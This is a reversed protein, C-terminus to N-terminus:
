TGRLSRLALFGRLRRGSSLRARVLRLITRLERRAARAAEGAGEPPGYRARAAAATYPRPNIGLQSELTSALASLTASSAVAIRQDRLYDALEAHTAAAIRRPDRTLYRARRRGLKVLGLAGALAALALLPVLVRWPSKPEAAPQAFDVAAGSGTGGTADGVDFLRGAGLAAIADASDSAITYTASFTGRGPTPDFPLWGYGEFWAEVWAHADHDSVTWVGDQWTGSTFGVAVRSPIGLFRLMVTMAGAFHQCYGQRTRVVFDVLPPVLGSRPPKEEYRFGGRARLWREVALTAVYPSSTGRALREAEAWLPRYPHLSIYQPDRLLADIVAARGNARFPPLQARGLEVYRGAQVPYEPKSRLLERPTPRPAYSWVTYRQGKRFGRPVRVVGDTLFFARDLSPSELAVPSTAAVVHDDRLGAIEVEQRVWDSRRAAAAPLLPDPPLDGKAPALFIPYLNEIWRDAAFTDLTSARWYLARRPAKIRLVTTKTNPFEVGSYNADWVYRVGVPLGPSDYFDWSKWNLFADRTVASSTSAAAALAIVAVAAAIGPGLSRPLRARGLLLIWLAAALVLVGSALGNEMVTAPWGAAAVFATAAIVDWRAAVLLSVAFALGFVILLLLAHMDPEAAPDFPLKVEYYDILGLKIRETVPALWSADRWPLADDPPVGYAIWVATFLAAVAAPVCLWAPRLLAPALALLAVALAERTRAPSEQGLWALAITLVPLSAVLATRRV